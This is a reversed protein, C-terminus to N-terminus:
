RDEIPHIIGNVEIRVPLGSKKLVRATIEASEVSDFDGSFKWKKGKKAFLKVKDM